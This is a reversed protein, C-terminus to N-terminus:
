QPPEPTLWREMRGRAGRRGFLSLRTSGATDMLGFYDGIHYGATNRPRVGRWIYGEL